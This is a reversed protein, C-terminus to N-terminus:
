RSPPEEREEPKRPGAHRCVIPVGTTGLAPIGQDEGPQGSSKGHGTVGQGYRTGIFVPVLLRIARVRSEQAGSWPRGQSGRHGVRSRIEHDLEQRHGDLSLRLRQLVHRKRPHLLLLQERQRQSRTSPGRSRSTLGPSSSTQHPGAPRLRQRQQPLRHRAPVSVANRFGQAGVQVVGVDGPPAVAEVLLLLARGRGGPGPGVVGQLLEALVAPVPGHGEAHGLAVGVEHGAEEPLLPEPDHRDVRPGAASRPGVGRFPQLGPFQVHDARHVHEILPHVQGM